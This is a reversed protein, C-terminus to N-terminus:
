FIQCFHNTMVQLCGLSSLGCIERNGCVNCNGPLQLLVQWVLLTFFMKFFLCPPTFNFTGELGELNIGECGGGGKKRAQGMETIIMM